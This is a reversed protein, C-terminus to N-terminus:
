SVTFYFGGMNTHAGAHEKHYNFAPFGDNKPSVRAKIKYEAAGASWTHWELRYTAGPVLVCEATFSDRLKLIPINNSNIVYCILQGGKAQTSIHIDM